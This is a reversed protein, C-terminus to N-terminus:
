SCPGQSGFPQVPSYVIFDLVLWPEWGVELILHNSSTLQYRISINIIVVCQVGLIGGLAGDGGILVHLVPVLLVVGSTHLNECFVGIM